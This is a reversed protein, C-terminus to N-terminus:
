KGGMKVLEMVKRVIEGPYFPEGDYKLFKHPIDLGTETRILRGMKGTFNGEVLLAKKANRIAHSIEKAHLPYAHTLHLMNVKIGLLSLENMADRVANGTSGWAIITVDADAPGELKPPATDALIGTLKRMRKEMMKKRTEVSSPLGSLVDSILLGKEDHEDSGAIYAMGKQGAFAMPSVGSPTYAYRKYTGPAGGEPVTFMSPPDYSLPFDSPDASQFDESLQFDIAIIAPTQWKTALEFAERTMHFTEIPNAPAVIIRPFDGQGAGLILDLDGQETKTPLGTSPGSRMSLAVVVPTEAMGAMGLAEVMLAFGGGSSATM